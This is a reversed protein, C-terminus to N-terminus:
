LVWFASTAKHFVVTWAARTTGDSGELLVAASPDVGELTDTGQALLLIGNATTNTKKILQVFNTAVSASAPLTITVAGAATSVLAVDKTADMNFSATKAEITPVIPVQGFALQGTGSNYLLTDGTTTPAAADVTVGRIKTVTNGGSAGTVDGALTASQATWGLQETGSNYALVQGTTTPVGSIAVGKIGVVEADDLDGNLDGGPSIGGTAGEVASLRENISGEEGDHVGVEGCVAILADKIRELEAATMVHNLDITVYGTPVDDVKVRGISADTKTPLTTLAM